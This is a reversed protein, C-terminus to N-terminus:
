LVEEYDDYNCEPEEEQQHRRAYTTDTSQDFRVELGNGGQVATGAPVEQWDETLDFLPKSQSHLSHQHIDGAGHSKLFDNECIPQTTTYESKNVVNVKNSPLLRWMSARQKPRTQVIRYESIVRDRQRALQKGFTIKQARESGKGLDFLETEQALPFLTATGVENEAHHEWWVAVFQRWVQGDTDLHRVVGRLWRDNTDAPSHLIFVSQGAYFESM